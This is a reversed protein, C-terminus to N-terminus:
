AAQPLSEAQATALATAAAREIAQAIRTEDNPKQGAGRLNFFIRAVGNREVTTAILSM